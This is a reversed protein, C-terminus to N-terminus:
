KKLSFFKLQSLWMLHSALLPSISTVALSRVWAAPLHYPRSTSGPQAVHPASLIESIFCRFVCSSFLVFCFGFCRSFRGRLVMWSGELVRRMSVRLRTCSRLHSPTFQLLSPVEPILGPVVLRRRQLRPSGPGAPRLASRGGGRRLAGREKWELRRRQRKGRIFEPTCIICFGNELIGVGRRGNHVLEVPGSLPWSTTGRPSSNGACKQEGQM